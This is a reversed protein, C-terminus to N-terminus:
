PHDKWAPWAIGVKDVEVAAVLAATRELEALSWMVDWADLGRHAACTTAIVEGVTAPERFYGWLLRQLPTADQARRHPAPCDHVTAPILENYVVM